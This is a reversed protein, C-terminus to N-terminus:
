FDFVLTWIEVWYRASTARSHLMWRCRFKISSEGDGARIAHLATPLVTRLRYERNASCRKAPLSKRDKKSINSVFRQKHKMLLINNILNKISGEQSIQQERWSDVPTRQFNRRFAFFRSLSKISLAILMWPCCSSNWTAPFGRRSSVRHEKYSKVTWRNRSRESIAESMKREKKRLDLFQFKSFCKVNTWPGGFAARCAFLEIIGGDKFWRRCTVVVCCEEVIGCFGADYSVRM